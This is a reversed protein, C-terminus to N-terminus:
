KRLGTAMRGSSAESIIARSQREIEDAEPGSAAPVNQELFRKKAEELPMTIMTGTEPHRAGDLWLRDWQKRLERYEAQPERLELNVRGQESEVGFGPAAQLRPEPPLSEVQGRAMPNTTAKEEAANEELVRYLAAMLGFTIVILLFLGVGFYVIGKLGIINQEYPKDFDVFSEEHKTKGM